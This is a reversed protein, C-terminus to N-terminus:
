KDVQCIAGMYLGDLLGHSSLKLDQTASNGAIEIGLHGSGDDSIVKFVTKKNLEFTNGLFKISQIEQEKKAEKVRGDISKLFSKVRTEREEVDLDLCADTFAIRAHPESEIKILLNCIDACDTQLKFTVTYDDGQQSICLVFVDTVTNRNNICTSAGLTLAKINHARFFQRINIQIEPTLPSNSM